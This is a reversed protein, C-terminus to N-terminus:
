QKVAGQLGRVFYGQFLFFVLLVPIISITTGAAFGPYDTGFEGQFAMMGVALNYLEKNGSSFVLPINFENWTLMFQFIVVTAIIPKALPLSLRFEQFFGAGDIKAADYLDEPITSFFSTFLLVYLAGGGSLPLIVGFRTNLLDLTRVLQFQPIIVTAIPVFLTALVVGYIINRGFFRYRALVYGCMATTVLVVSTASVSYLVTNFFYTSFNAKEWADPINTWVWETPILRAGDTWIAGDTKFATFVTWLFPYIWIFSIVGLVLIILVNYKFFRSPRFSPLFRRRASNKNVNEDNINVSIEM